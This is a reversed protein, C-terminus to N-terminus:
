GSLQRLITGHDFYVKECVLDEGDFVFICAAQVEMAKGTPTIGAWEGRHTGGFKCEVIVADDAHHMAIRQLWFDPFAGLLQGLLGEVAETGDAIAGFAPVEYRPHRFTALTAAVDHTATEAQIHAEVVAERRIRLARGDESQM